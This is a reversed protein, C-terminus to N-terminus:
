PQPALMMSLEIVSQQLEKVQESLPKQYVPEQPQPVNPNPYSFEILNTELDMRINAGCAMFDEEFEGNKFEVVGITDVNRESLDTYSQIDQEVTPITYVGGNFSYTKIYNGTLKDYYFRRFM